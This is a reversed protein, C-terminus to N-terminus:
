MYEAFDKLHEDDEQLVVLIGKASGAKRPKKVPKEEAILRAVPVAGETIIVSDGPCLNSIVEALHQEAHELAISSMIVGMKGFASM